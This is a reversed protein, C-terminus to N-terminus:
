WRLGAAHLTLVAAAMMSLATGVGFGVRARPSGALKPQAMAAVVFILAQGPILWLAAVGAAPDAWGAVAACGLGGLVLPVLGWPRVGPRALPVAVMAWAGLVVASATRLQSRWADGRVRDAVVGVSAEGRRARAEALLADRERSAPLPTLRDIATAPDGAQMAERALWLGLEARLADPLGEQAALAEVQAPRDASPTRRLRELATWTRLSGDADRRADLFTLRERCSLDDPIERCAAVEGDADGARQAARARALPDDAALALQVLLM